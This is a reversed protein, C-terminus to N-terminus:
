RDTEGKSRLRFVGFQAFGYEYFVMLRNMKNSNKMNLLLGSQTQYTNRIESNMGEFRRALDNLSTKLRM